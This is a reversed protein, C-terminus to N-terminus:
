IADSARERATVVHQRELEAVQRTLVDITQKLEDATEAYANPTCALADLAIAAFLPNSAACRRRSM